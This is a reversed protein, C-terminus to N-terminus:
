VGDKLEETIDEIIGVAVDAATGQRRLGAKHLANGLGHLETTIDQCRRALAVVDPCETKHLAPRSEEATRIKNKKM